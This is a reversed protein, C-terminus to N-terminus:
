ILEMRAVAGLITDETEPIFPGRFGHLIVAETEYGGERLMSRTPVYTSVGNSYGLTIVKKDKLLAKIKLAYESAIEGEMAILTTGADLHWSQIYHQMTWKDRREQIAKLLKGAAVKRNASKSEDSLIAEIEPIETLETYLKIDTLCTRFFCDVQVFREKELIAAVEEGFSNGIERLEESKCSKFRGDAVGKAAKIDAGFGQLFMATVGPYRDEVFQCALGVFDASILYGGMCSPHCGLSFLVGNVRDQSDVLKLVFLDKDIEAQFNPQFKVGDETKLRRSVAAESTGYGLLLRGEQLHAFCYEVSRIVLDKLQRYLIVDETFDLVEDVGPVRDQDISYVGRRMHPDTNEGTLYVSCHTHSFNILIEDEALGFQEYLADKVGTVFSRDGGTVDFTLMLLTKNAQLLVAKMYIPDHVGESKHDRGWFGALFVPKDPTINQKIVCFKM